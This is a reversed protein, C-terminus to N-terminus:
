TPVRLRDWPIRPRPLGRRALHRGARRRADLFVKGDGLPGSLGLGPLVGGPTFVLGDEGPAVAGRAAFSRLSWMKEDHSHWLVSAPGAAVDVGAPGPWHLVRAAHDVRPSARLGVPRGDGDYANLVADPFRALNRVLDTWEADGVTAHTPAPVPVAPAVPTLQQRRPAHATDRDPWWTVTEPRVRILRRMYYFDMFWRTPPTSSFLRSIPQVAHVRAWHALLDGTATQVEPEVTAGGQVLVVPPAGTGSGTPDSFLLSVRADRELHAIKAPFGISTTLLFEDRDPLYLPVMPWAIPTGDRAITAVECSLHASVVDVLGDPWTVDPPEQASAM